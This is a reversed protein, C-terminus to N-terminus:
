TQLLLHNREWPSIERQYEELEARKINAYIKCFEAGLVEQVEACEEFAALAANLGHPLNCDSEYVEGMAEARPKVKNQMGLLGAALSAAIALYPNADSGITRNEVRKAENSSNPIRLGITRNDRGWELNTPASQQGNYRRYSNVYPAFFPVLSRLYKQSGGIFHAMQATEVGKKDCFINRGTKIDVISQHIHMSSGPEDRMPKAMFTAFVGHKLAAERISRKFYFVQDALHLPDGHMLNIELQGAGGEHIVTDIMLGQKEAFDYITDIVNGYDDVAVMSFAQRSSSRGTRGVMPEIDKNPDTNPKCLYFEIEPAVVPRWGNDRYFSLVRKLVNRPAIGLPEGTRLELDHIVQMTPAEAWPVATATEIDPRLAIDVELWQNEIDMDVYEGSITQYFLSIPLYYTSTPAFKHAPMSKGRSQGAIDPIICEVEDLPRDNCYTRFAQPLTDFWKPYTTM